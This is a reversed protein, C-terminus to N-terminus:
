IDVRDSAFKIFRTWAEPIGPSTKGWFYNNNSSNNSNALPIPTGSALLAALTAVAVADFSDELFGYESLKHFANTEFLESLRSFLLGNQKAGGTLVIDYPEKFKPAHINVSKKIQETIWYVSGCLADLSSFKQPASKLSDFYFMENLVDGQSSVYYRPPLKKGNLTQCQFRDWFDLLESSRRGQVSLRGGVDILSEGKTAQFTFLNLLSGCPVVENHLIHSWSDSTQNAPIYTWRATEGLDILLRAKDRNSLLVWYPFTLFSSGCNKQSWDSPFLSSFVNMGTQVALSAGDSVSYRYGSQEDESPLWIGPDNVAIAVIKGQAVNSDALLEHVAERQISTTMKRLLSLNALSSAGKVKKRNKPTSPQKLFFEGFEEYESPSHRKLFDNDQELRVGELTEEYFDVLESPLDFSVSKQLTLLAGPRAADCAIIATELKRFASSIHIGVFLHEAHTDGGNNKKYSFM